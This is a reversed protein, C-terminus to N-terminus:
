RRSSFRTVATNSNRAINSQQLSSQQLSLSNANHSSGKMVLYSSRNYPETIHNVSPTNHVTPPPIDEDDKGCDEVCIPPESYLTWAESFSIIPKRLGKNASNHLEWTWKFMGIQEDIDNTIHLYKEPPNQEIFKMAHIRCKECPFSEIMAKLFQIFFLCSDTDECSMAMTHIAYWAGPGIIRPNTPLSVRNNNTSSM